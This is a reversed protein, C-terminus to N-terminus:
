GTPEILERRKPSNLESYWKMAVMQSSEEETKKATDTNKTQWM